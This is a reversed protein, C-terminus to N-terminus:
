CDLRIRRARREAAARCVGDVVNMTSPYIFVNGIEYSGQDGVRAMVWGKSGIGREALKGSSVWIEIWQPFSLLFPIGRRYSNKKHELYRLCITDGYLKRLESFKAEDCGHSKLRYSDIRAEIIKRKAAKKAASRNKGTVGIRKLVLRVWEHSVGFEDGLKTLSEGALYRRKLDSQNM